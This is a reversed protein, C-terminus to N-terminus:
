DGPPTLLYYPSQAMSGDGFSKQGGVNDLASTSCGQFENERMWMVSDLHNNRAADDMAEKEDAWAQSAM